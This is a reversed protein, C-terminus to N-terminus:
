PPRPLRIQRHLEHEGRQRTARVACSRQTKLVRDAAWVTPTLTTLPSIMGRSASKADRVKADAIQRQTGYLAASPNASAASRM